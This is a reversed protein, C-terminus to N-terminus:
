SVTKGTSYDVTGVSSSLLTNTAADYLDVTSIATDEVFSDRLYCEVTKGSALVTTFTNSRISNPAIEVGYNLVIKNNEGLYPEYARHLNMEINTSYISDSVSNLLELLESYYFNKKVKSTTNIFYSALYSQM